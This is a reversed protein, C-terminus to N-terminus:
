AVPYPLGSVLEAMELACSNIWAMQGKPEVPMTALLTAVERHQIVWKRIAATSASNNEYKGTSCCDGSLPSASANDPINRVRTTCLTQDHPDSASFHEIPSRVEVQTCLDGMSAAPRTTLGSPEEIVGSSVKLEEVIAKALEAPIPVSASCPPPTIAGGDLDNLCMTNGFTVTREAMTVDLVQPQSGDSEQSSPPPLDSPCPDRPEAATPVTRPPQKATGSAIGRKRYIYSALLRQIM